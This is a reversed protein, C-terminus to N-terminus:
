GDAIDLVITHQYVYSPGTAAEEEPATSTKTLTYLEPQVSLSATAGTITPDTAPNSQSDNGLAFGGTATIDLPQDLDALESLDLSLEVDVPPNGPSFSGYPLSVVLLTDGEAGTVVLPDGLSDVAFPHEIQGTADFVLETTVVPEGLFTAEQFSVGDDGDAGATPLIVDIYPVYGAEDGTNDFTLTFTVDDSGLFVDTPGELAVTPEADLVIRDELREFRPLETM